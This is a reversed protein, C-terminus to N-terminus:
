RLATVNVLEEPLTGTFYNNNLILSRVILYCLCEYTGDFVVLDRLSVM